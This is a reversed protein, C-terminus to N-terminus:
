ELHKEMFVVDPFPNHYYPDIYYFGYQEYLKIASQLKKFTDLRMFHFGKAKAIRLLHDVLGKGIGYQRFEPRVYLRKMECYDRDPMRTLAICGAPVSDWSALFLAGAHEGYKKLPDKLEEDFRQFALDTALEREYQSFLSRVVNLKDGEATVNIIDLM